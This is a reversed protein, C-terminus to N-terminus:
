MIQVGRDFLSITLRALNISIEHTVSHAAILLVRMRNGFRIRDTPEILLTDFAHRCVFSKKAFLVVNVFNVYRVYKDVKKKLGPSIVLQTEAM